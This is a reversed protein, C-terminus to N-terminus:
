SIVCGGNILCGVPFVGGGGKDGCSGGSGCQVVVVVWQWGVGGSGGMWGGGGGSAQHATGSSRELQEAYSQPLYDRPQQRAFSLRACSRFASKLFELELTFPPRQINYIIM